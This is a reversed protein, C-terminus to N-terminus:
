NELLYKSMYDNLGVLQSKNEPKTYVNFLFTPTGLKQFVASIKDHNKTTLHSELANNLFEEIETIVKSARTLVEKLQAEQTTDMHYAGTLLYFVKKVQPQVPSLVEVNLLKDEVLLHGKIILKIINNEIVNAEDAGFENVMVSKLLELNNRIEDDVIKKLLDKGINSSAIKGAVNKKANHLLSGRRPKKGKPKDGNSGNESCKERERNIKEVWELYEKDNEAAFLKYEDENKVAFTHERASNTEKFITCKKMEFVCNPKDDNGKLVLLYGEVLKLYREKWPNRGIKGKEERTLIKGEKIAAADVWVTTSM